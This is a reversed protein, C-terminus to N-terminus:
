SDHFSAFQIHTSSGKECIRDFKNNLMALSKQASSLLVILSLKLMIPWYRCITINVYKAKFHIYMNIICQKSRSYISEDKKGARGMKKDTTTATSTIANMAQKIPYMMYVPFHNTVM